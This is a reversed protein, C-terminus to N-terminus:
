YIENFLIFFNLHIFSLNSPKTCVQSIELLEYFNKNVDEVVDFLSLDDADWALLQPIFSFLLVCALQAKM